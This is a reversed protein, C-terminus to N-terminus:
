PDRRASGAPLWFAVLTGARPASEIHVLGGHAEIIERAVALGGARALGPTGVHGLLDSPMGCGTDEITWYQDGSALERTTVYVGGPATTAALANLLVNELAEALANADGHVGGVGCDVCLQIQGTSARDYVRAIAALVVREAVCFGLPESDAASRGALEAAILAQARQIASWSRVLRQRSSEGLEAALARNISDIAALCNKIAHARVIHAPLGPYRALLTLGALPPKSENPRTGEAM